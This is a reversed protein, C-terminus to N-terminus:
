QYLSIDRGEGAAIALKPYDKSGSEAADEEEEMEEEEDM